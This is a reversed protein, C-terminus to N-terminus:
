SVKRAHLFSRLRVLGIRLDRQGCPLMSRIYQMRCLSRRWNSPVSQDGEANGTEGTKSTNNEHSKQAGTKSGRGRSRNKGKRKGRGKSNENRQTEPVRQSSNSFFEAVTTVEDSPIPVANGTEGDLHNPGETPGLSVANGTEVHTTTLVANDTERGGGSTNIVVPLVANGTEIGPPPSVAIDEQRTEPVPQLVGDQSYGAEDFPSGMRQANGNCRLEDQSYGAENFPLDMRQANGNCRLDNQSYGAEDFPSGMRQANGSCKWRDKSFKSRFNQIQRVSLNLTRAIATHDKWGVQDAVDLFRKRLEETWLQRTNGVPFSELLETRDRQSEAMHSNRIHGSLSRQSPWSSSCYKCVFKTLDDDETMETVGCLNPRNTKGDCRQRHSGICCKSAFLEGCDPCVFHFLKLSHKRRLHQGLADYWHYNTKCINCNWAM